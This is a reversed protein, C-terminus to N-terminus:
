GERQANSTKLVGPETWYGLLDHGDDLHCLNAAGM